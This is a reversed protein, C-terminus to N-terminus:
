LVFQLLCHLLCSLRNGLGQLPQIFFEVMESMFREGLNANSSTHTFYYLWPTSHVLPATVCKQVIGNLKNCSGQCCRMPVRDHGLSCFCGM